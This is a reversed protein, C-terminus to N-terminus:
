ANKRTHWRNMIMSLLEPQLVHLTKAEGKPIFIRILMLKGLRDGTELYAEPKRLQEDLHREHFEAIAPQICEDLIVRNSLEHGFGVTFTYKIFGEHTLNLIRSNMVQTNPVKLLNFTPTYLNTYNITIEEVQGELAGIKVYDKVKFPQTVLVYFGAVVNNITQSSGFGLVAGILASSGVFWDTPLSWVRLLVTSAVMIAAVRFVLRAANMAHPELEANKGTRSLLRSLYKYTIFIVVIAVVSQLLKVADPPLQSWIDLLSM